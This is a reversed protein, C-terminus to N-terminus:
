RSVLIKRYFELVLVNWQNYVTTHVEVFGKISDKQIIDVVKTEVRITDGIFVPYTHKVKSYELNAIAKGSVDMVSIGVALSLVLTGVVLIQGHHAQEAYQENLHVPHHNMTLLCFLNNDSETITKTLCHKFIQGVKFEDLSRGMQNM